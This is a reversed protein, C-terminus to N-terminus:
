ECIMILWFLLCFLMFDNRFTAIAAISATLGTNATPAAHAFVSNTGPERRTAGYQSMEPSLPVNNNRM